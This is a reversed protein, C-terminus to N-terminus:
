AARLFSNHKFLADLKEVGKKLDFETKLKKQAKTALEHRLAPNMVLHEISFMLAQSDDSPVMLGNKEHTILEAIGGVFTSIVSVGHSMAEMLVNPIGDRDGSETVKAPLIFIDGNDYLNKVEYASLPGLFDVHEAIGLEQALSKLRRKEEGGGGLSLHWHIRKPLMSLANLLVDFGKKPVLRGLAILRIKKDVSSGDHDNLVPPKIPFRKFDLGHHVLQIKEPYDTINRLYEAAEHHCSAVWTAAKIKRELDWTESEWIDKAHASITLTKGSLLHAYYAVSTPAHIFHGHIHDVDKPCENLFVLAQFFRKLPKMSKQRKMDQWILPLLNPYNLKKQYFRIAQILRIPELVPHELLYTIPAEVWSHFHHKKRDKPQKLAFLHIQYGKQELAYIEQAIFTESLRPYGKLIYAINIKKM